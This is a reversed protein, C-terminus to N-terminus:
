TNFNLPTTYFSKFDELHIMKPKLQSEFDIIEEIRNFISKYDQVYIKRLNKMSKILKSDLERNFDPFSYGIIILTETGPLFNEAISLPNYWEFNQEFAFRLGSTQYPSLNNLFSYIKLFIKYSNELDTIEFDSILSFFKKQRFDIVSGALGNLRILKFKTYDINYDINLPPYNNLLESLGTVDFDPYYKYYIREFQLDYNWSIISINKNIRVYDEKRSIKTFFDIYRPDLNRNAQTLETTQTNFHEYVIYASLIAKLTKLLERKDLDNLQKALSDITNDGLEKQMWDLENKLKDKLEAINGNLSLDKDTIKEEKFTHALISNILSYIKENLSNVLPISHYSAGAGILYTVKSM